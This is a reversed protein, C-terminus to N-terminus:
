RRNGRWYLLGLLLTITALLTSPEPVAQSGGGIVLDVFGDVDLGNVVMDYNCDAEEQWTGAIVLAVFPAVDLGNVAEDGNVDGLLFPEPISAVRFGYNHDELTPYYGERQSAELGGQFM